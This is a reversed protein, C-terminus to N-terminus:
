LPVGKKKASVSNPRFEAVEYVRREGDEFVVHVKNDIITWCADIYARGTYAYAALLNKYGKCPRNTIVIEGGGTNPLSWSDAVANSAIIALAIAIAAKM